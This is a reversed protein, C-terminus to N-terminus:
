MGEEKSRLVIDVDYGFYSALRKLTAVTVNDPLKVAIVRSITNPSMRLAQAIKVIPTNNQAKILSRFPNM